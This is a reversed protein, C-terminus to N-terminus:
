RARKSARPAKRSAGHLFFRVVVEVDKALPAKPDQQLATITFARILGGMFRALVVPELPELIGADIGEQVLEVFLARARALHRAAKGTVDSASSSSAGVLGHEAAITFFARHSEVYSLIRDVRARLRGEFDAPDGPKAELQTIFGETREELLARLVDEKQEFHNYVTGVAIRARQAVDQIRARHFGHEAFVSEAAELIANRFLARAEDRRRPSAAARRASVLSV